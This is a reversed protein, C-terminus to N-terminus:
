CRNIHSESPAVSARGNGGNSECCHRRRLHMVPRRTFVSRFSISCFLEVFDFEMGTSSPVSVALIKM